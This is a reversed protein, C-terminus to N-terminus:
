RDLKFPKRQSKLRARERVESKKKGRFLYDIWMARRRAPRRIPIGKELAEQSERESAGRDGPLGLWIGLGLALVGFLWIM